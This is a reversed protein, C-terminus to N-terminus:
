RRTEISLESAFLMTRDNDRASWKLLTRLDKQVSGEYVTKGNVVVTVPESLDFQDPSLLLTFAGVGRATAEVRNGTRKLDVRGSEHQRPFMAGAEGPIVSPAYRGTLRITDEGRKVTLILPREPPYSRLVEVLDTGAPAPQNNITAVIDGSKLGIQAANSGSAVRNIRPGIGRIGFEQAPASSMRNLDPFTPDDPREAQLGDIVLWHARSPIESAGAEWSIADPLPRRPHGAVFAEYSDKIEPWWSTDHGANPQPRYDLDVGGKKLQAVYPDVASTPYLPDKGGNVIFMPKNVMNHPFLDGDSESQENRLVMVFGNLPLFSAFPTTDRMAEYYTGTGGDSVGSLVIRNEDVNYARKLLDLITRLNTTQRRTWWPADRWAVPMVYIQEAGQLRGGGAEQPASDERRGVGGHLQVRVRYKRAPDYTEPVDLTYFYETGDSQYSQKVTGRPVERSYARGQRLRRLAEDFSVGTAVIQDSTAAVEQPTRAQFFRTFAADTTSGPVAIQMASAAAGLLVLASALLHKVAEDEEVHDRQRCTPSASRPRPL